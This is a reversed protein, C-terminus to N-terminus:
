GEFKGVVVDFLFLSSVLLFDRKSIDYASILKPPGPNIPPAVAATLLSQQHYSKAEVVLILLATVRFVRVM